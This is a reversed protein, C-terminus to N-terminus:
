AANHKCGSPCRDPFSAFLVRRTPNARDLVCGPPCARPGRPIDVTWITQPTEQASAIAKFAYSGDSLRRMHSYGFETATQGSRVKNGLVSLHNINTPDIAGHNPLMLTGGNGVVVQVPATDDEFALGQFWHVHGGIAMVFRDLSGEVNAISQQMTWDLTVYHTANCAVSFLPRHSLYINSAHSLSMESMVRVQETYYAIDADIASPDQSPDTRRDTPEAEIYGSDVDPCTVDFDMHDIGKGMPAIMSDDLLPFRTARM